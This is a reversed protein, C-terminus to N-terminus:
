TRSSKEQQKADYNRQDVQRFGEVIRKAEQVDDDEYMKLGYSDMMHKMDSFGGEKLIQNNSKDQPNGEASGGSKSNQPASLM